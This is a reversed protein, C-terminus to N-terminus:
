QLHDIREKVIMGFYPMHVLSQTIKYLLIFDRYIAKPTVPILWVKLYWLYKKQDSYGSM